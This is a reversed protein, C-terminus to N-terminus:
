RRAVPEARRLRRVGGARRWDVRRAKSRIMPLSTRPPPGVAQMVATIDAPTGGADIVQQVALPIPVGAKIYVKASTTTPAARIMAKQSLHNFPNPYFYRM